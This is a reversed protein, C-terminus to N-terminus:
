SVVKNWAIVGLTGYGHWFTENAPQTGSYKLLAESYHQNVSCKFSFLFFNFNQLPM